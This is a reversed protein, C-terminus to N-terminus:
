VQWTECKGHSVCFENCFQPKFHSVNLSFGGKEELKINALM